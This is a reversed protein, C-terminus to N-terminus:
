AIKNELEPLSIINWGNEQLYGDDTDHCLFGKFFFFNTGVESTERILDANELDGSAFEVDNSILLTRFQEIEQLSHLKVAARSRQMTSILDKM